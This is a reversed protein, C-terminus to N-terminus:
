VYASNATLSRFERRNLCDELREGKASRELFADVSAANVRIKLEGM